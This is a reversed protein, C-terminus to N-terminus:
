QLTILSCNMGAGHDTTDKAIGNRPSFYEQPGSNWSFSEM